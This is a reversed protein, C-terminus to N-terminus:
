QQTSTRRAIGLLRQRASKNAYLSRPLPTRVSGRALRTQLPLQNANLRTTANYRQEACYLPSSLVKMPQYQREVQKDRLSILYIPGDVHGGTWASVNCPPGSCDGSSNM